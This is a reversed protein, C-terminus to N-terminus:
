IVDPSADSSTMYDFSTMFDFKKVRALKNVNHLKIYYEKFDRFFFYVANLVPRKKLANKRM